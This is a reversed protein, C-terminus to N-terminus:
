RLKLTKIAPPDVIYPQSDQKQVFAKLPFGILRLEEHFSLSLCLVTLNKIILYLGPISGGSLKAQLAQRSFDKCRNIKLYGERCFPSLTLVLDDSSSGVTKM